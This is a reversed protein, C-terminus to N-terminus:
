MDDHFATSEQLTSEAVGRSRASGVRTRWYRRAFARLLGADAWPLDNSSAGPLWRLVGLVNRQRLALTMAKPFFHCLRDRGDPQSAVADTGGRVWHRAAVAFDVGARAAMHFGLTPRAHFDIAHLRHPARDEQIWDFGCFGHFGTLRALRVAVAEAAANKRYLRSSAPGFPAPDIGRMLSSVIALPRGRACLMETVGAEGRVIAQLVFPKGAARPLAEVLQSASELRWVTSGSAGFDAKMLLPFGLEDAATLAARADSCVRSDPVAIGDARCASVFETKHCVMARSPGAAPVPFCGAAWPEDIFAAVELVIDEDGLIVGDFREAPDLLLARLRRRVSRVGGDVQLRRRAHRSAIAPSKAPALVTVHMGARALLGPIHACCM